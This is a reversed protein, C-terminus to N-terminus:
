SIKSKCFIQIIVEIKIKVAEEETLSTKIVDKNHEEKGIVNRSIVFPRHPLKFSFYDFNLYMKIRDILYEEIM